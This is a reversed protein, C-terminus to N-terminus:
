PTFTRSFRCGDRQFEIMRGNIVPGAVLREPLHPDAGYRFIGPEIECLEVDSLPAECGGAAILFLRDERLVIRCATFWPSHSRYRGVYSKYRELTAPPLVSAPRATDRRLVLGGHCWVPKGGERELTFNFRRFAPHDTTFRSTWHRYFRAKIGGSILVIEGAQAADPELTITVAQGDEATGSFSGLMAPDAQELGSIIRDGALRLRLDMAAIQAAAQEDADGAAATLWEHGLRAIVHAAPWDGHANTLVAIGIGHTIDALAFTAYGVMGGGHTLCAAGRVTEVNVGLGYNSTEVGAGALMEPTDEGGVALSGIFEAFGKESLIRKGGHEGRGLLAQLFYGMDRGNSAINGDAANFEFWTSPAVADGLVWPQDDAAPAYGVALRARDPNAVCPLTETMGLPDLIRSQCMATAPQGTVAEVVLGLLIYGANSYHFFTGPASGTRTERLGWSQAYDDPVADAGGILGSTHHLLHRLTFMPYDTKVRFWPLYETVPADLDVRGEEALQLILIGVFIKSISGIAFLHTPEIPTGAEMNAQGFSLEALVADRSVVTITGGPLPWYRMLHQSLATLRRTLVDPSIM